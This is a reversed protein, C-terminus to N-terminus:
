RRDDWVRDRMWTALRYTARGGLLAVGYTLFRREFPYYRIATLIYRRGVGLRDNAVANEGARFAAWGLMKRRFLRGYTRALPEHKEVFRRYGRDVRDFDDTVRNTAGTDYYVLPAPVHTFGCERSLRIYWDLEQWSPFGDDFGGARSVADARVMAVSTSGIFNRCLLAKTTDGAPLPESIVSGAGGAVVRRGCYALGVATPAAELAEVQDEVKAPAWWDDDDLLAIYDGDAAEIGTNRAAGGGRNTRHRLCRFAALGDTPLASLADSAPSPSADDVVLLEIPDYSQDIVSRVARQVRAPRDYTPIVVSVVPPGSESM